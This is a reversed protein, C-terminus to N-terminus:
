LRSFVTYAQQSLEVRAVDGLRVLAATKAGADATSPTESKVVINEFDAVDSLRGLTTVTLQFIQDAAAPAGGIAGSTVQANQHSIAQDVDLATLVFSQLKAPDLWVRMSYPAGGMINVQGVGRLRALPSQLNIIAYNSLFTEDYRDDDSYLSEILLINTSVKR